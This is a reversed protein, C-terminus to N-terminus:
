YAHMSLFCRKLRKIYVNTTNMLWTYVGFLCFVAANELVQKLSAGCIVCPMACM